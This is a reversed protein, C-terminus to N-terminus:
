FCMRGGHSGSEECKKRSQCQSSWIAEGLDNRPHRRVGSCAIAAGDVVASVVERIKLVSDRMDDVHGGGCLYSANAAENTEM